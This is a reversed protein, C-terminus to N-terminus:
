AAPKAVIAPSELPERKRAALWTWLTLGSRAEARAPAIIATAYGVALLVVNGVVGIMYEHWTFRPLHLRAAVSASETLTAWLTFVLNAAIGLQAARATARTSLFALLFLGALGGAVVSMVGYYLALATGHSH